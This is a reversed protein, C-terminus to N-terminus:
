ENESSTVLRFGARRTRFAFRSSSRDQHKLIVSTDLIKAVSRRDHWRSGGNLQEVTWPGNFLEERVKPCRSCHQLAVSM